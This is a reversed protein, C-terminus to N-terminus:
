LIVKKKMVDIEDIEDFILCNLIYAINIYIHNKNIAHTCRLGRQVLQHVSQYHRSPTTSDPVHCGAPRDFAM